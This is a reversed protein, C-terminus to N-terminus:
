QAKQIVLTVYGFDVACNKIRQYQEHLSQPIDVQPFYEEVNIVLTNGNWTCSSHFSAYIIQNEQLVAAKNLQDINAIHWGAPIQVHIQYHRGFPYDPSYKKISTEIMRGIRLLRTEGAHELLNDAKLTAQIAMCPLNDPLQTEKWTIHTVLAQPVHYEVVKQMLAEFEKDSTNRYWKRLLVALHGTLTREWHTTISTMTSDAQLHICNQDLSQMFHSVPLSDILQETLPEEWDDFPPTVVLAHNGQLMAPIMGLNYETHIPSFYLNSYTFHFVFEELAYLTAFNSDFGTQNRDATVLLQHPIDAITFLLAYLQIIDMRGGIHTALTAFVSEHLRQEQPEIRINENVFRIIANIKEQENCANKLLASIVQHLQSIETDTLADFDYILSRVMYAVDAWTHLPMESSQQKNYSLKYDVRMVSLHRSDTSKKEPPLLQQIRAYLSNKGPYRLPLLSLDPFHNYSKAEFILHEPTIIEFELYWIPFNAEFIARGFFRPDRRIKYIYEIESGQEIGEFAFILYADTNEVELSRMAKPAVENIAGSPHVTRAKIAIVHNADALPIYVKNFHSIAQRSNIRIIKHVTEYLHMEQNLQAYELIRRDEVIVAESYTMNFPIGIPHRQAQWDYQENEFIGAVSLAGFTLKNSPNASLGGVLRKTSVFAGSVSPLCLQLCLIISGGVILNLIRVTM